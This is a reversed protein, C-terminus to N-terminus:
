LWLRFGGYASLPAGPSLSRPDTANPVQLIPVDTVPSFTGFTAYKADLLNEIQAFLELHRDVRYKLSAGLVFYHSTQPNLNSEDGRLYQGDAYRSSLSIEWAENPRYAVTMKASNKPVSPLSDGPAVHIEDNPDAHPNDPSELTLFSRFTADTYAYGLSAMWPGDSIDASLEAGQRRTGGINRFFGRGIVSSAAFMIDDDAEVRYLGAHWHLAVGGEQVAGRAGAEFTHAVVQKLPPDAVFFNTLSCPANASACSFEAPTPARNADAYGAYLTAGWSLRYTLGVAPNLHLFNHTGNLANGLKDHVAINADNLRASLSLSLSRTVSFIDSVYLGYDDNDSAVSVPGIEGNATDIEIGPRSFGRQITLAGLESGAGFDTRGADYAIGAVLRNDLTLLPQQYTAQLSGGFGLTDTSTVNLQAYTGSTLFDPIPNGARDLLVTGDDLCLERSNCPEADSADGNLTRQHFRSLYFNVQLSLGADLQASGHLNGLLYRNDTQDPFTFVASRDVALLQVPSPGNGTLANAAGIVDLHVEMDHGRWGLDAFGQALHSPSHDRWGGDDLLTGAAFVSTEGDSQGYQVSSAVRGYSGGLAEAEAGQWRFGDKLKVAISGGIANLGFVPNSGELTLRDIAIDPILDWNVVDGFPQNVRVGDVYVALGQADGALPSAEFGRYFLNPQFPNDQADALTVGATQTSLARLASAAGLRTLDSSSLTQVDTPIQDPDLSAGPLATATVVVTEVEALAVGTAFM